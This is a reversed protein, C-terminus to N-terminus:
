GLSRHLQVLSVGDQPVAGDRLDPAIKRLRYRPCPAGGRQVRTFNLAHWSSGLEPINEDTELSIVFPLVFM